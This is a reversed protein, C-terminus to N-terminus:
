DNKSKSGRSGLRLYTSQYREMMLLVLEEENLSMIESVHEYDDGKETQILMEGEIRWTGVNTKGDDYEYVYSKDTNYIYSTRGYEVKNTWTGIILSSYESVNNCGFCSIIFM